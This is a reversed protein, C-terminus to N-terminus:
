ASSRSSFAADRHHQGGVRDRRLRDHGSRTRDGLGHRRRRGRGRHRARHRDHQACRARPRRHSRGLGRSLHRLSAAPQPLVRAAAEAHAPDRRPAGDRLLRVARAVPGRRATGLHAAGRAAPLAPRRAADPRAAAADAGTRESRRDYPGARARGPARARCVDRRHPRPHMWIAAPGAVGKIWGLGYYVVNALVVLGAITLLSAWSGGPGRCARAARCHRRHGGQVGRPARYLLARYLLHDGAPVREQRDRCYPVGVYEAMLFAAAGM